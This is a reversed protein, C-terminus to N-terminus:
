PASRLPLLEFGFEQALTIAEPDDKALCAQFGKAFGSLPQAPHRPPTLGHRQYFPPIVTAADEGRLKCRAVMEVKERLTFPVKRKGTKPIVAEQPM